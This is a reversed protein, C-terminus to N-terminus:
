QDLSHHHPLNRRRLENRLLEAEVNSLTASCSSGEDDMGAIVQDWEDLLEVSISHPGYVRVIELHDANKLNLHVCMKGDRARDPRGEAIAVLNTHASRVEPELSRYSPWSADPYGDIHAVVARSDVVALVADWVKGAKEQTTEVVFIRRTENEEPVLGEPRELWIPM